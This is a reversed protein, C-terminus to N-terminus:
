LYLKQYFNNHFDSEAFMRWMNDYVERVFTTGWSQVSISTFGYSVICTLAYKSVVQPLQPHIVFWPQQYFVIDPKMEELSKYVFNERDYGDISDINLSDFFKKNKEQWFELRWRAIIPLNIIPLVEFNDDKKMEDYISQYGWKPNEECLFAVRIKRNKEKKLKEIVNYYNLKTQYETENLFIFYKLSKFIDKSAKLYNKFVRTKEQIKKIKDEFSYQVLPRIRTHLPVLKNEKFFIRIERPNITTIFIVDPNVSKIESPKCTKVGMYNQTNNQEYMIDSTSCINFYKNLDYNQFIVDSFLGNGYVLVRKNKYKQSLHKLKKEFDINKLFKTYSKREERYLSELDETM